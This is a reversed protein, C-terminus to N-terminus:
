VRIICCIVQFLVELLLNLGVLYEPDGLVLIWRLKVFYFACINM